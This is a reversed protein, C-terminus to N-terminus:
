PYGAVAHDIYADVVTVKEGHVACRRGPVIFDDHGSDIIFDSNLPNLAGRRMFDSQDCLIVIKVGDHDIESFLFKRDFADADPNDAAM